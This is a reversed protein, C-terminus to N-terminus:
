LREVIGSCSGKYFTQFTGPTATGTRFNVYESPGLIINSTGNDNVGKLVGVSTTASNALWHVNFASGTPLTVNKVLAVTSTGLNTTSTALDANLNVDIGNGGFSTLHWSLLTSTANYPNKLSCLTTSTAAIPQSYYFQKVGGISVYPVDVGDLTPVGALTQQVSAPLTNRVAGSFMGVIAIIGIVVTVGKWIKENKM